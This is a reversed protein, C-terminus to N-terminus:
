SDYEALFDGVYATVQLVVSGGVTDYGKGTVHGVVKYSIDSLTGTKIIKEDAFDNLDIINMVMLESLLVEINAKIFLEKDMNKKVQKVSWPLGKTLALGNVKSM